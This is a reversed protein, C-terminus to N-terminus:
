QKQLGKWVNGQRNQAKELAQLDLLASKTIELNKRRRDGGLDRARRVTRPHRRYSGIM